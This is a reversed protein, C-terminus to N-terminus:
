RIVEDARVLLSQSITLGLAKAAQLNIVLEFHTPQEIALEGPKAGRLIKDIFTALRRYLVPLNVGYSLLGGNEAFERFPSIGPVRQAALAGAIAKAAQNILPSGLLIIAGPRSKVNDDLARQLGDFRSFEHVLLHVSRSDAAAKIADVQYTGTAVDRLVAM